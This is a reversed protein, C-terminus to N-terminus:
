QEKILDSDLLEHIFGTIDSEAREKEVEFTALVGNCIDKLRKQHDLEQWIYEGVPNLTFIQQMDALKGRIPVLLLEGAIKRSVIQENKSFIKDWMSSDIKNADEM